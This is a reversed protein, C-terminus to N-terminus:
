RDGKIQEKLDKKIKNILEEYKEKRKKNHKIWEMIDNYNVSIKKKYLQILKTKGFKYESFHRLLEKLEQYHNEELFLYSKEVENITKRLQQSFKKLNQENAEEWLADATSKLDYLSHWLKTYLEFQRGSYRLSTEKLLDLQTKYHEIEKQYEKRISELYKKAWLEGFYSSLKLIIIGAGGVSIIVGSIIQFIENWSM